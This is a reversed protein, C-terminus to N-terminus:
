NNHQPVNRYKCFKKCNVLFIVSSNVGEIM